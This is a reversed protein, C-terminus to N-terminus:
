QIHLLYVCMSRMFIFPHDMKENMSSFLFQYLHMHSNLSPSCTLYHNDSLGQFLPNGSDALHYQSFTSQVSVILLVTYLHIYLLLGYLYISVDCLEAYKTTLHTYLFVNNDPNAIAAAQHSLIRHWPFGESLTIQM